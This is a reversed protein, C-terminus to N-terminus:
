IAEEVRLYKGILFEAPFILLWSLLALSADVMAIPISIAFVVAPTVAAVLYNRFGRDTLRRRLLGAQQAHWFLVADLLSAIALTVAYLVIVVVENDGYNGVLATPFPM